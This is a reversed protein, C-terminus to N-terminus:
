HEQPHQPHGAWAEAGKMEALRLVQHQAISLRTRSKGVGHVTVWWAGRDMPNM